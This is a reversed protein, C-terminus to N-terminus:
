TISHTGGTAHRREQMRELRKLVRGLERDNSAEHRTLKNMAELGPLAAARLKSDLNLEETAAVQELLRSLRRPQEDVKGALRHHDNQTDEPAAFEDPFQEKLWERSENSM